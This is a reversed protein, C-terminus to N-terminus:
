YISIFGKRPGGQVNRIQDTQFTIALVHQSFRVTGTLANNQQTEGEKGKEKSIFAKHGRTILVTGREGINIPDMILFANSENNLQWPM